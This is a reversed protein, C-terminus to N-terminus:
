RWSTSVSQSASQSVLQGDTAFHSHGQGQRIYHCMFDYQWTM